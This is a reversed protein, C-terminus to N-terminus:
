FARAEAAQRRRNRQIRWFYTGLGGMAGLVILRVVLLKIEPTTSVTLTVISAGVYAALAAATYALSVKPPMVFAFALVLPFYLVYFESELGRQEPWVVLVLTVIALDIVSTLAILGRNAPRQTLHRGHLYFNVAMLAVVPLIGIVLHVPQDASWLVMVIGAAILFWRAWNIVVQGFFVDEAAEQAYSRVQQM